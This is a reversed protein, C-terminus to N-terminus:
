DSLSSLCYGTFYVRPAKTVYLNSLFIYWVLIFRVILKTLFEGSHGAKLKGEENTLCVSVM